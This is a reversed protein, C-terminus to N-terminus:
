RLVGGYFGVGYVGATGHMGHSGHYGGGGPRALRLGGPGGDQAGRIESIMLASRFLFTPACCNDKMSWELTKCHRGGTGVSLWWHGESQVRHGEWRAM